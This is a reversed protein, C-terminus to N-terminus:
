KEVCNVAATLQTQSFIFYDAVSQKRISIRLLLEGNNNIKRGAIGYIM